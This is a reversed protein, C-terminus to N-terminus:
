APALGIMNKVMSANHSSPSSTSYGLGPNRHVLRDGTRRLRGTGYGGPPLRSGSPGSSTSCRMVGRVLSSMRLEGCLGHTTCQGRRSHRSLRSRRGGRGSRGSRRPRSPSGTRRSASCRGRNRHCARACPGAPRSTWARQWSPSATPKPTNGGSRTSRYGPQDHVRDRTSGGEALVSRLPGRLGQFGISSM